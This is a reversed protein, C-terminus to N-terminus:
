SRLISWEPIDEPLEVGRLIEDIENPEDEEVPEVDGVADDAEILDGRWDKLRVLSAYGDKAVATDIAERVKKLIFARMPEATLTEVTARPFFGRLAPEDFQAVLRNVAQAVATRAAEADSSLRRGAVYAKFTQGGKVKFTLPHRGAVVVEFPVRSPVRSSCVFRVAKKVLKLSPPPPESSVEAEVDFSDVIEQVAKVEEEDNLDFFEWDDPRFKPRVWRVDWLHELGRFGRSTIARRMRVRIDRRIWRLVRDRNVHDYLGAEGRERLRIAVPNVAAVLDPLLQVLATLARDIPTETLDGHLYADFRDDGDISFRPEPYIEALRLEWRLHDFCERHALLLDARGPARGKPRTFSVAASSPRGHDRSSAPADHLSM